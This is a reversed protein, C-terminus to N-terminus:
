SREPTVSPTRAADALIEQAACLRKFADGAWASGGGYTVVAANYEDHAAAVTEVIARLVAQEATLERRPPPPPPPNAALHRARAAVCTAAFAITGAVAGVVTGHTWTALHEVVAGALTVLAGGATGSLALPLPRLVRESRLGSPAMPPVAPDRFPTKSVPDVEHSRGAVRM